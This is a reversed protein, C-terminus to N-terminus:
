IGLEGQVLTAKGRPPLPAPESEMVVAPFLDLCLQAEDPNRSHLWESWHERPLIVVSRKEKGPAHMRSMVPHRDANVTLMTFTCLGDPWDRWLGAIAFAPADRVWIRYRVSKPGLEYNPEYIATAPILCRRGTFWSDRFSRREGITEVRANTTDFRATGPPIRSKPVMGFTALVCDNARVIPAPYDPWTEDPYLGPPPEVGFIDRLLQAQLPAYNTCM